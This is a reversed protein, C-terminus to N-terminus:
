KSVACILGDPTWVLSVCPLGGSFEAINKLTNRDIQSHAGGMPHSHWTGIFQLYSLSNQNALLLNEQLGEIGLIFKTPQRISDAPADVL